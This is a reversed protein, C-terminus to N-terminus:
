VDSAAEEFERKLDRVQETARAHAEHVQEIIEAESWGVFALAKVCDVLASGLKAGAYHHDRPNDILVGAVRHGMDEVCEAHNVLWSGIVETYTPDPM